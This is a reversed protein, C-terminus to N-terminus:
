RFPTRCHSIYSSCHDFFQAVFGVCAHHIAFFGQRFRVAVHFGSDFIQAFGTRCFSFLTGVFRRFFALNKGRDISVLSDHDFDKAFGIENGALFFEEVIDFFGGPANKGGCGTVAIDRFLSLFKFFVVQFFEEDFEALLHNEAPRDTELRGANNGGIHVAVALDADHDIDFARSIRLKELRDAHM